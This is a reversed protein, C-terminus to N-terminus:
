RNELNFFIIDGWLNSGKIKQYSHTSTSIDEQNQLTFSKKIKKNSNNEQNGQGRVGV